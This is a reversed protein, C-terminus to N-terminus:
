IYGGSKLLFLGTTITVASGATTVAVIEAAINGYATMERAMIYSATATPAATMLFILGLDEGKFGWAIAAAAVTVPIFLLKFFASWVVDLHNARFSNWNLTGGICLLALPLTLQAFYGGTRLLVEPAPIQAWSFFLGSLVGIILPNKLLIMLYPEQKTTLVLISLLNYLITLFALYVSVKPLIQDGYANLVLAIGIIGMNGRFSGQIFVGRKDRSVLWPSLIWLCSVILVTCAAGFLVLSVDLSQSLPRTATSLFLMSPLAVNFVLRNSAGIFREDILKYRRFLWGLFLIILIPGTVNLAFSLQEYMTREILYEPM